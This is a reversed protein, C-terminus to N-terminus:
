ASRRFVLLRHELKFMSAKPWHDDRILDLGCSKMEATFAPGQLREPIVRLYQVREEIIHAPENRYLLKGAAIALSDAASPMAKWFRRQMLLASNMACHHPMTAILLGGPALDSALKSALDKDSGGLLHLVSEAVIVDSPLGRWAYYDSEVFDVGDIPTRRQAAQINVSSIDIGTLILDPRDRKLGFVLDGAGCGLDLVRLGTRDPLLAVVADHFQSLSQQRGSFSADSYIKSLSTNDNM